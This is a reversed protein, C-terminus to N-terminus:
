RGVAAEVLSLWVDPKNYPANYRLEDLRDCQPPNLAIIKTSPYNARLWRAMELRVEQPAAHGVIFLDYPTFTNLLTKAAENGFVSQVSYGRTRLLKGRELLPRQDYAIHFIRVPAAAEAM